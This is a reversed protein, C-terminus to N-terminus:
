ARAMREPRPGDATDLIRYGKSAAEDRLADATAWDGVSRARERADILAAVEVPLEEARDEQREAELAESWVGDPIGENPTPWRLDGLERLRFDEGSVFVREVGHRILTATGEGMVSCTEKAFDLILATHEDVGLVAVEDPLRSMLRSMRPRGMYCRSTDHHIGGENNNWHAVVTLRLGYPGFLDLGPSWHLDEGAKYVEYVPLAYEGLSVAAASAICLTAGLRHRAVLTHWARSDELHRVAYTPSGPGMFIYNASLLPAVIEPSNTGTGEGKRRAPIVDVQPRHNQLRERLFEAVRTAVYESNLQFGAPTELISFRVPVDRQRFLCDYVRRGTSATEGSGLLAVIGPRTDASNM